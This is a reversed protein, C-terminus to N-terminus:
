LKSIFIDSCCPSFPLLTIFVKMGPDFDATGRFEGVTYVNGAADVKISRGHEYDAGGM